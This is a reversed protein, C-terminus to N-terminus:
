EGAVADSPSSAGTAEAWLRRVAAVTASYRFGRRQLYAGLRRQFTAADLGALRRLQARGARYAAAEEDVAALAAAAEPAAIGKARLEAQLAAAGRPRFAQRQEVWYRAFARDDVLGSAALRARAAAIAVASYGRRRLRQELERESRPRVALLALAADLARRAEDAAALEALAAADIAQDVQLTAALAADLSLAYRGDVFVQVRQGGRRRQPVLATIRGVM